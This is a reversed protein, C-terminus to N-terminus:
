NNREDCSGAVRRRQRHLRRSPDSNPGFNRVTAPTWPLPVGILLISIVAAIKREPVSDVESGTTRAPEGEELDKCNAVKSNVMDKFLPTREDVATKDAWRLSKNTM